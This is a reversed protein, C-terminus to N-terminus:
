FAHTQSGLPPLPCVREWWWEQNGTWPFSAGTRLGKAQTPSSIRSSSLFTTALSLWTPAGPDSRQFLEPPHSPPPAPFPRGPPPPRAHPHVARLQSASGQRPLCRILFARRPVKGASPWVGLCYVPFRLACDQGCSCCPYSHKGPSQPSPSSSCFVNRSESNWVVAVWPPDPALLQQAWPPSFDFNLRFVEWHSLHGDSVLESPCHTTLDRDKVLRAFLNRSRLILFWM